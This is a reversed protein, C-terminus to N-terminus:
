FIRRCYYFISQQLNELRVIGYIYIYHIHIFYYLHILKLTLKHCAYPAKIMDRSHLPPLTSIKVVYINQYLIYKERM